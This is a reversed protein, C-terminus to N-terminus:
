PWVGRRAAMGFSGVQPLYNHYYVAFSQSTYLRRQPPKQAQNTVWLEVTYDGAALPDVAVQIEWPTPLQGCAADPTEAEVMVVAGAVTHSLYAPVCADPHLDALRITIGDDPTPRVPSIDIGGQVDFNTGAYFTPINTIGSIIFVDLRYENPPLPQVPVSFSWDTPKDDCVVLPGPTKAEIWVMMDDAGMQHFAPVCSNAWRGSVVVLFPQSFTPVNPLIQIPETLHAANTAGSLSFAYFLILLLAFFQRFLRIHVM